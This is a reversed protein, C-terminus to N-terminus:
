VIPTRLIRVGIGTTKNHFKATGDTSFEGTLNGGNWQDPTFTADVALYEIQISGTAANTSFTNEIADVAGLAPSGNLSVTGGLNTLTHPQSATNAASSGTKLDIIVSAQTVITFASM